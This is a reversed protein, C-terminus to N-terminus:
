LVITDSETLKPARHTVLYAGVAVAAVLIIVITPVLWRKSSLKGSTAAAIPQSVTAVTFPSGSASSTEPSPRFSDTTIRPSDVHSEPSASRGSDIERKLRKLDSLM